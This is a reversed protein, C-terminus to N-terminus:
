THVAIETRNVASIQSVAERIRRLDPLDNAEAYLIVDYTGMVSHVIKVGEIKQAEQVVLFAQGKRTRILMFFPIAM